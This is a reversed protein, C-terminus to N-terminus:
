QQWKANDNDADDDDDDYDDDNDHYDDGTACKQM